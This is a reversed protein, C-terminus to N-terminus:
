DIKYQRRRGKRMVRPGGNTCRESRWRGLANLRLVLISSWLYPFAYKHPAYQIKDWEEESIYRPVMETFNDDKEIEKFGLALGLNLFRCIQERCRRSIEDNCPIYTVLYLSTTNLQTHRACTIYSHKYAHQCQQIYTHTNTIISIHTCTSTLMCAIRGQERQECVHMKAHVYALVFTGCTRLPVKGRLM